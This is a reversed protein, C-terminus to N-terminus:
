AIARQWLRSSMVPDRLAELRAWEPYFARFDAGSMHADKAPYLRGGAERVIADLRAFLRRNAEDHQPFDLALTVGPMPFSLVGPSPVDGFRKLVALFSGSHAAAIADLLARTAAAANM